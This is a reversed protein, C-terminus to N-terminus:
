DQAALTNFFSDLFTAFEVKKILFFSNKKKGPEEFITKGRQDGGVIIDGYVEEKWVCSPNLACFIALPDHLHFVRKGLLREHFSVYHYLLDRYFRHDEAPVRRYFTSEEVTIRSTVDLPLVVLSARSRFLVRVAMPDFYANFEAWPTVNGPGSAGGMWVIQGARALIGPCTQEARALNTAPGTAMILLDSGYREVTQILFSSADASHVGPADMENVRLRGLGEPGHVHEANEVPPSLPGRLDSAVPISAKGARRLIFVANKAARRPSTNGGTTTVGVLRPAGRYRCLYLIALADDVGPDCDLIVFKM